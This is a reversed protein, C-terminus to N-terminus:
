VRVMKMINPNADPMELFFVIRIWFEASEPSGNSISWDVCINDGVTPSLPQKQLYEVSFFM